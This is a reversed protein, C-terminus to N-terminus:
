KITIYLPVWMKNDADDTARVLIKKTGTSTVVDSFSWASWDHPTRANALEFPSGDISIEVRKIKTEADSVSGTINVRLVGFESQMITNNAPLFVSLAPRTSDAAIYLNDRTINSRLHYLHLVSGETNYDSIKEFIKQFTNGKMSRHIDLRTNGDEPKAMSTTNLPSTTSTSNNDDQILVNDPKPKSVAIYKAYFESLREFPKEALQVLLPTNDPKPESTYEPVLLYSSNHKLMFQVLARESSVWPVAVKHDTFYTVQPYIETTALTENRPIAEGVRRLTTVYQEDYTRRSQSLAPIQQLSTVLSVVIM